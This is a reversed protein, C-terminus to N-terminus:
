DKSKLLIHRIDYPFGQEKYIKCRAKWHSFLLNDAKNSFVDVLDWVKLKDKTKHLRLGRGISQRILQESKYSDAFVINSIANISVGTGLTKYTAVLIRKRDDITEMNAKIEDRVEGKVTGDIYYFIADDIEKEFTKLLMRGYDITKFLVLTNNKCKKLLSTLLKTRNTSKQAYESELKFATAGQGGDRIQRMSLGFSPDAHNLILGHIKLESIYNKRQLQKASIKYVVPGTSQQITFQDAFGDDFFTGSMSHRWRCHKLKKFIGSIVKGKGLHGEDLVVGDFQKLWSKPQNALSQWTSIWINSDEKPEYQRPYDSHLESVRIDLPEKADGKMGYCYKHIDDYFQTVLTTSPVIFLFKADPDINKLIYFIVTSYILSKGGATAVEIASYRNKLLKWVAQRQYDRPTFHDGDYTRHDEYYEDCFKDVQNFTIDERPFNEKGEVELNINYLKCCRELEKWLGIGILGDNYFDISGPWVGMKYRKMFQYGKVKPNFFGKIRLMDNRSGSVISINQGDSTIKVVM